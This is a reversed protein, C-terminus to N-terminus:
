STDLRLLLFQDQPAEPGNKWESLSCLKPVGPGM